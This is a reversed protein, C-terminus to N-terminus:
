DLAAIPRRCDLGGHGHYQDDRHCLCLSGVAIACCSGAEIDEGDADIEFKLTMGGGGFGVRVDVDLIGLGYLDGDGEVTVSVLRLQFNRSGCGGGYGCVSLMGVGSVRSAWRPEGLRLFFFTSLESAFTFTKKSEQGEGM